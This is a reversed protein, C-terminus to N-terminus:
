RDIEVLTDGSMVSMVCLIEVICGYGSLWVTMDVVKSVCVSDGSMVSMVSM